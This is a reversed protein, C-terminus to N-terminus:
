NKQFKELLFFKINKTKLIKKMSFLPENKVILIKEVNKSDYDLFFNNIKNKQLINVYKIEYLTTKSAINKVVFDIEEDNSSNKAYFVNENITSNFNFITQLFLTETISGIYVFNEENKVIDDFSQELYACVLNPSAVFYKYIKTRKRSNVLKENLREVKYFLNAAVLGELIKNLTRFNLNLHNLMRNKNIENNTTAILFYISQLIKENSIELKFTKKLDKVTENLVNHKLYFVNEKKNKKLLIEPFQGFSLYDHFNIKKKFNIKKVLKKYENFTWPWINNFIFRGPGTEKNNLQLCSSGTAIIKINKKQADCFDDYLVKFWIEWDNLAQVEDLFLYNIKNQSIKEKIMLVFDQPGINDYKLWELSYYFTKKLNDKNERSLSSILQHLITTKGIRRLGKLVRFPSINKNDLLYENLVGFIERKIHKQRKNKIIEKLRKKNETWFKEMFNM